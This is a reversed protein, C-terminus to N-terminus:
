KYHTNSDNYKIASWKTGDWVFGSQGPIWAIEQWPAFLESIFDKSADKSAEKVGGIEVM